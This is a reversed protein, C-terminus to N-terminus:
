QRPAHIEAHYKVAVYYESESIEILSTQPSYGDPRSTWKFFAPLQGGTSSVFKAVAETHGNPLSHEVEAIKRYARPLNGAENANKFTIM